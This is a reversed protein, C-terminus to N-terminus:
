SDFYEAALDLGLENYHSSTYNRFPFDNIGAMAATYSDNDSLNDQACLRRLCHIMGNIILTTLLRDEVKRSATWRHPSTNNKVAGIFKNIETTSYEVYKEIVDENVDDSTLGNLLDPKSNDQWHAYLSDEAGPKLLAALGYKVISATKM